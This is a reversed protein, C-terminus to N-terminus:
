AHENGGIIYYVSPGTGLEPRRRITFNSGLVKRVESNPETVDGFIIAGDSAEVCAPKLGKALREYCFTCKEVVGKMRTPFEPNPERKIFPRPDQWNFSRAGYPCAAMCFRCGICRHMDMMVIGDSKRKFTAKTPCVRVCPPNDCHNCTVLFPMHKYHESLYLDEQGPFAHEYTEPWLWKIERKPDPIDPVNHISHCADICKQYDSATKFKKMDIVMAWRKAAMTKPDPAYQAAELSGKRFENAISMGGLGLITSIGAIKLFERRNM